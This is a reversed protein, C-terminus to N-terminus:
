ENLANMFEKHVEAVKNQLDLMEKESLIGNKVAKQTLEDHQYKEMYSMTEELLNIFYDLMNERTREGKMFEEEFFTFIQDKLISYSDDFGLIAISEVDQYEKYLTNILTNYREKNDMYDHYFESSTLLYEGLADDIAKKAIELKSGYLLEDVTIEGLEAISKLRENNPINRGTEWNSVAPLTADIKQAFETQTEGRSKRIARIRGGIRDKNLDEM